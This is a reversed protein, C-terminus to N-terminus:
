DNIKGIGLLSYIISIVLSVFITMGFSTIYFDPELVWQCLSLVFGNIVLQFIGLSLITIPFAIFTLVPKVFTNLLALIIAVLFAVGFSSVYVSDFAYSVIMIVAGELIFEFLLEFIGKRM